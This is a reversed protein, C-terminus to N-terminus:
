HRQARAAAAAAAPQLKRAPLEMIAVPQHHGPPGQQPLAARSLGWVGAGRKVAGM